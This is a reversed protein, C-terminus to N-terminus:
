RMIFYKSIARFLDKGLPVLFLQFLNLDQFMLSATEEELVFIHSGERHAVQIGTIVPLEPSLSLFQKCPYCSHGEGPFYLCTSHKVGAQPYSILLSTLLTLVSSYLTIQPQVIILLLLIM